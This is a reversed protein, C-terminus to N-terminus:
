VRPRTEEGGRRVRPLHKLRYFLLSGLVAAAGAFPLFPAFSGTLNLGASLLLSGLASSLALSGIILGVVTSYVEVGFYTMALYGGIDGEAGLSLGLLLVGASMVLASPVGTALLALGIGPLGLALAAVLHAPYRDLAAGCLLRGAIVGLAYVSIILSADRASLGTDRVIVGLQTTQMVITLSCLV